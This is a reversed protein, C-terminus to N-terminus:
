SGSPPAGPNAGAPPRGMEMAKKKSEEMQKKIEAQDVEPTKTAPPLGKSSGCGFSASTLLVCMLGFQAFRLM